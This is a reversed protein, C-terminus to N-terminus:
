NFLGTKVALFARCMIYTNTKADTIKILYQSLQFKAVQFFIEPVYYM